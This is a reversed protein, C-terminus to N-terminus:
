MEGMVVFFGRRANFINTQGSHPRVPVRRFIMQPIGSGSVNSKSIYATPPQQM